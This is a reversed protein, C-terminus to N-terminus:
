FLTANLRFFAIKGTHCFWEVGGFVVKAVFSHARVIRAHFHKLILGSPRARFGEPNAWLMAFYIERDEELLPPQTPAIRHPPDGRLGKLIL